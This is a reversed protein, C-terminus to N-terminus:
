GQRSRAKTCYVLRDRQNTLDVILPPSESQKEEGLERLLNIELSSGRKPTENAKRFTLGRKAPHPPRLNRFPMKLTWM